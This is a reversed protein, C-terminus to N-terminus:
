SGNTTNSNSEVRFLSDPDNLYRELFQGFSKAVQIPSVGGAIAVRGYALAGLNIVYEHAWISYDAFLFEDAYLGVDIARLESGAPKLESLPWFRILQRDYEGLAMGDVRLFYAVLDDPLHIRWNREFQQIGGSRVGQRLSIGQSTWCTVLRKLLEAM